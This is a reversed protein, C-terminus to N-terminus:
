VKDKYGKDSVPLRVNLQFHDSSDYLCRLAQSLLRGGCHGKQSLRHIVGGGRAQSCHCRSPVALLRRM